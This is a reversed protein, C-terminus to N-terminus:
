GRGQGPLGRMQRGSGPMGPRLGMMGLGNDLIGLSMCRVQGKLSLHKVLADNEAAIKKHYQALAARYATLAGQLEKNSPKGQNAVRRLKTLEATLVERAQEKALMTKKAAAKEASTLDAQDLMQELMQQRMKARDADSMQGRAGGGGWPAQAVQVGATGSERLSGPQAGAAVSFGLMAALGVVVVAIVVCSLRPM